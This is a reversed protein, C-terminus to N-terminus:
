GSRMVFTDLYCTPQTPLPLNTKNEKKNNMLKDFEQEYHSNVHIKSRLHIILSKVSSDSLTLIFGDAKNKSCELCKAKDKQNNIREFLGISWIPHNKFM